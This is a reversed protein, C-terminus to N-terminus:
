DGIALQQFRVHKRLRKGLEVAVPGLRTSPPGLYYFIMTREDFLLEADVVQADLGNEALLAAADGLSALAEQRQARGRAEDEATALRVLEGTPRAHRENERPTKLIEGLESGRTTQVVVREHRQGDAFHITGFIGVQAASGYRILYRHIGDVPPPAAGASMGIEVRGDRIRVPFTRIASVGGTLPQGTSLDFQMGHWPCTLCLGHWEGAALPGGRHTCHNDIAYWHDDATRFIAIREGFCELLKRGPQSFEAVEGLAMWRSSNM